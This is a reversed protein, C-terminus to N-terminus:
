ERKLKEKLIDNPESYHYKGRFQSTYIAKQPCKNYCAWCFHCKRNDFRPKPDLTIAGRPCNRSCIGCETCLENDVKKEGMLLNLIGRPFPPLLTNMIGIKIKGPEIKVNNKINNIQRGLDMIFENFKKLRRKNPHKAGGLGARIMPPFNEPTMLSHGGIVLFGKGTVYQNMRKLTKGSHFGFTNVLFAPKLNQEPLQQIYDIFLNPPEWTDTFTAFGVIDYQDLNPNKQKRIHCFDFNVQSLKHALYKCALLTNGTNSYYLIIGKM